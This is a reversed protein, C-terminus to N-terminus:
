PGFRLKQPVLVKFVGGRFLVLNKKINSSFYGLFEHFKIKRHLFIDSNWKEIFVGGGGLKTPDSFALPPPHKTHFAHYINKKRSMGSRTSNLPQLYESESSLPDAPKKIFEAGQFIVNKEGSTSHNSTPYINQNKIDM